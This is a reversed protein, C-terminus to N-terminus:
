DGRSTSTFGWEFSRNLKMHKEIARHERDTFVSIRTDWRYPIQEKIDDFSNKNGLVRRLLIGESICIDEYLQWFNQGHNFHQLHCLEHIITTMAKGPDKILRRNYGIRPTISKSCYGLGQMRFSGIRLTHAVLNYKNGIYETYRYILDTWQSFIIYVKQEDEGKQRFMANWQDRIYCLKEYVDAADWNFITEKESNKIQNMVKDIRSVFVAIPRLPTTGWLAERVLHRSHEYAMPESQKYATPECMKTLVVEIDPILEELRKAQQVIEKLENIYKGM